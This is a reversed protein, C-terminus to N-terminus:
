NYDFSKPVMKSCLLTVLCQVTTSYILTVQFKLPTRALCDARYYRQTNSTKIHRRTYTKSNHSNVSM